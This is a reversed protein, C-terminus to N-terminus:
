LVASGRAGMNGAAGPRVSLVINMTLYYRRNWQDNDM